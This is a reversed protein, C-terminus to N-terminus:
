DKHVSKLAARVEDSYDKGIIELIEDIDETFDPHAAKFKEAWRVADTMMFSVALDSEESIGAFHLRDEYEGLQRKCTKLCESVGQRSIGKQEAIESLTLDLNFYMDTIEQQTPTLLSHYLDWLRMFTLKDMDSYVTEAKCLSYCMM